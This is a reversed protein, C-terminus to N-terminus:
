SSPGAQYRNPNECHIGNKFVTRTLVTDVFSIYDLQVISVGFDASPEFKSTNEEIMSAFIEADPLWENIAQPDNSLYDIM